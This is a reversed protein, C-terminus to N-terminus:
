YNGKLADSKIHYGILVPKGDILRFVFEEDGDGKEFKTSYHLELRHDGNNVADNFGTRTTSKVNGLRAHIQELIPALGGPAAKIEAGAGADIAAFQAADYQKHFADVAAGGSAIDQGMSCGALALAAIMSLVYRKM